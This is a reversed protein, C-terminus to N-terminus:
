MKIISVNTKYQMTANPMSDNTYPLMYQFGFLLFMIISHNVIMSEIEQKKAKKNKEQM